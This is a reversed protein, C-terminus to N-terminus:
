LSWTDKGSKYNQTNNQM